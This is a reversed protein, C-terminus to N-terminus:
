TEIMLLLLFVPEIFGKRADTRWRGNV